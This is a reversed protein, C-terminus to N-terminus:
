GGTSWGLLSITCGWLFNWCHREIETGRVLDLLKLGINVDVEKNDSFKSTGCQPAKEMRLEWSDQAWINVEPDQKWTGKAQMGGKINSVM